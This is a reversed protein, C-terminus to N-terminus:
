EDEGQVTNFGLKNSFIPIRDLVNERKKATRFRYRSAQAIEVTEFVVFPDFVLKDVTM